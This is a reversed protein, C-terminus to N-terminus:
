NSVEEPVDFQILVPNIEQYVNADETPHWQTEGMQVIQPLSAQEEASGATESSDPGSQAVNVHNQRSSVNGGRTLNLYKPAQPRRNPNKPCDRALHYPSQCNYCQMPTGDVKVLKGPLEARVTGRGNPDFAKQPGQSRRMRGGNNNISRVYNLITECVKDALDRPTDPNLWAQLPIGRQQQQQPQTSWYAAGQTTQSGWSPQQQGRSAIAQIFCPDATVASTAPKPQAYARKMMQLRMLRQRIKSFSDLPDTATMVDHPMQAKIQRVIDHETQGLKVGLLHVKDAFELVSDFDQPVMNYWKWIWAVEGGGELDYKTQFSNWFTKWKDASDLVVNHETTLWALPKGVLQQKLAVYRNLYVEQAEANSANLPLSCSPLLRWAAETQNKFATPDTIKDADFKPLRAADQLMLAQRANQNAMNEEPLAIDSQRCNAGSTLAIPDAKYQKIQPKSLEVAKQLEPLIHVQARSYEPTILRTLEEESEETASLQRELASNVKESRGADAGKQVPGPSRDESSDESGSGESVTREVSTDGSTEQGSEPSEFVESNDSIHGESGM